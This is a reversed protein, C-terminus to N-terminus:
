PSFPARTPGAQSCETPREMRRGGGAGQGRQGRGWSWARPLRRRSLVQWFPVRSPDSSPDPLQPLPVNRRFTDGLINLPLGRRVTDRQSLSIPNLHTRPDCGTLRSLEGELQESPSGEALLRSGASVQQLGSCPTAKEMWSLM